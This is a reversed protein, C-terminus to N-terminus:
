REAVWWHKNDETAHCFTNSPNYPEDCEVCRSATMPNVEESIGKSAHLHLTNDKTALQMEREFRKRASEIRTAVDAEACTIIRTFRFHVQVNLDAM